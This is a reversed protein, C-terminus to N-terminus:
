NNNVVAPLLPKVIFSFINDAKLGNQEDIKRKNRCSNINKTM